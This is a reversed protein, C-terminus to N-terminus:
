EASFDAVFKRYMSYMRSRSIFGVLINNIDVVPLFDAKTADFKRMVEEMPDNMGLTAPTKTMLQGVTMRGYLETRFVIHRIKTLDIEGM